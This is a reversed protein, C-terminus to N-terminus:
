SIFLYLKGSDMDNCRLGNYSVWVPWAQSQNATDCYCEMINRGQGDQLALLDAVTAPNFWYIFKIRVITGSPVIETDTATTGTVIYPNAVKDITLAM